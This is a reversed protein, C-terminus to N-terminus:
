LSAQEPTLPCYEKQELKDPLNLAVEEDKKTRRLLFPRIFAQLQQVKEADDDKEIPLVFRKQFQGLSGLYGHNTFDFISWLESLRNEMPTGTLAIHHKGKLKRVARSQKTQANKINQAEDISISSWEIREFDEADLHTLGYSTLVIDAAMAKESFSEEKPRNAGYHLYVK